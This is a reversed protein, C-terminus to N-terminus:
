RDEKIAREVITKGIRLVRSLQRISVHKNNNYIERIMRNREDKPMLVISELSNDLNYEKNIIKTLVSDNYKKVLNYDLCEDSNRANM